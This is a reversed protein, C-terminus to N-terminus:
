KLKIGLREAKAECARKFASENVWELNSLNCNHLNKDIHNALRLRFLITPGKATFYVATMYEPMESFAQLVLQSMRVSTSGTKAVSQPCLRNPLRVYPVRGEEVYVHQKQWNGNLFVEAATGSRNVRLKFGYASTERFEEDATPLPAVIEFGGVAESKGVEAQDGVLQAEKQEFEEELAREVLADVLKAKAIEKAEARIQEIEEKSLKM